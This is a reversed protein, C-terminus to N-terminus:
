ANHRPCHFEGGLVCCRGCLNNTCDVAPRNRCYLADCFAHPRWTRTAIVSNVNGRDETSSSSSGMDSEDDAVFVDGRQREVVTTSHIQSENESDEMGESSDDDDDDDDSDYDSSDDDDEDDDIDFSSSSDLLDEHREDYVSEVDDEDDEDDVLVLTTDDVSDYGEEEVTETTTEEQEAYNNLLNDIVNQANQLYRRHIRRNRGPSDMRSNVFAEAEANQAARVIRRSICPMESRCNPCSNKGSLWEAICNLHVANGCCLTAINPGEELCILCTGEKAKERAQRAAKCELAEAALGLKEQWVRNFEVVARGVRDMLLRVLPAFIGVSKTVQLIDHSSVTGYTKKENTLSLLHRTTELALIYEARQAPTAFLNITFPFSKLAWNAVIRSMRGNGDAFPHIDVIGYMAVSAFLIVQWANTTISSHQNDSTNNTGGGNIQLQEQLRTMSHCFKDMESLINKPRTFVTNGARVTKTRIQGAEPHLDKLLTSHWQLLRDPTLRDKQQQIGRSNEQGGPRELAQELALNYNETILTARDAAERGANSALSARQRDLQSTAFERVAHTYNQVTHEPTLQSSTQLTMLATHQTLFSQVQDAHQNLTAISTWVAEQSEQKPQEPILTPESLLFRQVNTDHCRVIENMTMFPLCCELFTGITGARVRAATSTTSTPHQKDNPISKPPSRPPDTPIRSSIGPSSSFPIGFESPLRVHKTSLIEFQTLCVLPELDFKPNHGDTTVMGKVILGVWDAMTPPITDMKEDDNNNDPKSLSRALYNQFGENDPDNLVFIPLSFKGDDMTASLFHDHLPRESRTTSTTTPASLDDGVRPPSPTDHLNELRIRVILDPLSPQEKASAHAFAVISAVADETISKPTKKKKPKLRETTETDNEDTTRDIRKKKVKKKRRKDEKGDSDNTSQEDDTAVDQKHKKNKKNKKKHSLRNDDNDGQSGKKAKKTRDSSRTNNDASKNEKDESTVVHLPRKKDRIITCTANRLRQQHEVFDEMISCDISIHMYLSLFPYFLNHVGLFELISSLSQKGLRCGLETFVQDV